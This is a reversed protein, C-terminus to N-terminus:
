CCGAKIAQANIDFRGKGHSICSVKAAKDTIILKENATLVDGVKVNKRSRELQVNGKYLDCRKREYNRFCQRYIFRWCM